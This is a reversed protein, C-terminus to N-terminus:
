VRETNAPTEDSLQHRQCMRNDAPTGGAMAM